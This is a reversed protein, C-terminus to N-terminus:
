NYPISVKQHPEPSFNATLYAFHYQMGYNLSSPTVLENMLKKHDGTM